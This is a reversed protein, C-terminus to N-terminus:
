LSQAEQYLFDQLHTHEIALLSHELLLCEVKILHHLIYSMREQQTHLMRASLYIGINLRHIGRDINILYMELIDDEIQHVISHLIALRTLRKINRHLRLVIVLMQIEGDCVSTQTHLFLIQLFDKILEVTNMCAIDMIHLAEAQPQSIYLLNYVKMISLDLHVALIALSCGEGDLQRHNM